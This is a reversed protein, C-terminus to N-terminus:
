QMLEPDITVAYVTLAFIAAILSWRILESM